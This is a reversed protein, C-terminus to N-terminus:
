PFYTFGGALVHVGAPATVWLHMPDTTKHPPTKGTITENDVVVWDRLSRLGFRISDAQLLNSGKIIVETGGTLPGTNPTISTLRPPSSPPLSDESSFGDPCWAMGTTNMVTVCIAGPLPVAPVEGVIIEDNVVTMNRLTYISFRVKYVSSFNAGTLVVQTGGHYSGNPPSVSSIFPFAIAPTTDYNFSAARTASGDPGSVTVDARGTYKGAPTIGQIAGGSVVHFHASRMGFRVKSVEGLNDGIIIFPTGGELSGSSPTVSHIAPPGGGSLPDSYTFLGPFARVGFGDKEVKIEASGPFKGVPIQLFALNDSYEIGFATRNMIRYKGVGSLGSGVVFVPARADLPCRNPFVATITPASPLALSEIAAQANIRGGSVCKGALCPLPDATDLIASKLGALDLSPSTAKLLAALGAVHPTAMSTGSMYGYRGSPITSLIWSGPAAVDVSGPGYCSFACLSDSSDTAAVAIINDEPYSSPYHPSQDNDTGSNGAAAVFVIGANRAAQIAQRLSTSYSSGGWSNSLIHAGNNIAYNICTVADSTWGSGSASLFKLAMIRATWCVGVVGTSNNGVGAITGACHTGHSHDDGPDGSGTIANIGHVDDVYGNGDDDIGNSPIEGPNVWMNAQLDPHHVQVGTDIVAVVVQTSGQGTDWAAPAKIKNLGWLYNSTFYPDDPSTVFAQLPYDPEVHVVEPRAALEEMKERLSDAELRYVRSQILPLPKVFDLNSDSELASVSADTLLPHIKVIIRHTGKGSPSHQRGAPGKAKVWSRSSVEQCEIWTSVCVALVLLFCFLGKMTRRNHRSM